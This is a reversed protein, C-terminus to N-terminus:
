RWRGITVEGAGSRWDMRIAGTHCPDVCSGESLCSGPAALVAMCDEVELCRPACVEVCAGCGDCADPDIVPLWKSGPRARAGENM